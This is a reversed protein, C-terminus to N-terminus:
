KARLCECASVVDRESFGSSKELKVAVFTYPEFFRGRSLCSLGETPMPSVLLVQGARRPKMRSFDAMRSGAIPSRGAWGSHRM